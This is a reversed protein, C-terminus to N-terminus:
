CCPCASSRSGCPPQSKMSPRDAEGRRFQVRPRHQRRRDGSRPGPCAQGARRGARGRPNGGPDQAILSVDVRQASLGLGVDHQRRGWGSGGGCAAALPPPFPPAPSHRHRGGPLELRRQPPLLREPAHRGGGERPCARLGSFRRATVSASTYNVTSCAYPPVACRMGGNWAAM